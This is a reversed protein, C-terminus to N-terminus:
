KFLVKIVQVYDMFALDDNGVEAYICSRQKLADVNNPDLKIVFSLDSIARDNNGINKYAIGRYYYHDTVCNHDLEIAKTCNEIVRDYDRKDLYVKARTCFYEAANPRLNIAHNLCEIARDLDGHDIFVIARNFFADALAKALNVIASDYESKVSYSAYQDIYVDVNILKQNIFFDEIRSFLGGSPVSNIICHLSSGNINISPKIPITNLYGCSSFALRIYRFNLFSVTLFLSLFM